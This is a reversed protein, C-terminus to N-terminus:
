KQWLYESTKPLIRYKRKTVKTSHLAIKRQFSISKTSKSTVAPASILTTESLFKRAVNKSSSSLAVSAMSAPQPGAERGRTMREPSVIGCDRNMGQPGGVGRGRIMGQPTGAAGFGRTMGEGRDRTMGEPTGAAGCGRTMGEGVGRSRNMGEQSEVGRGRTMGQPTGTAECGRTMGEGVGRGRTMGQPILSFNL